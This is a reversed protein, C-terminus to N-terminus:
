KKLKDGKFVVVNELGWRGDKNFNWSSEVFAITDTNTAGSIRQIGKLGIAKGKLLVPKLHSFSHVYLETPENIKGKYFLGLKEYYKKRNKLDFLYTSNTETIKIKAKYGNEFRSVIELPEPTSLDMLKFDKLTYIYNNCEDGNEGLPINAFIDMVSDDNLDVFKLTPKIGSELPILYTKHNSANIKLYIKKFYSSKNQYPLVNLHITDKLGDGTIDLEKKSLTIIKAKEEVAYVGTIANLSVLLIITFILILEKRM